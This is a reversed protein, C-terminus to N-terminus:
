ESPSERSEECSIAAQSIKQKRLALISLAIREGERKIEDRTLHLKQISKKRLEPSITM